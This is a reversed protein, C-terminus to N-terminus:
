NMFLATKLSTYGVSVPLPPAEYRIRSTTLFPTAPWRVLLLSPGVVLRASVTVCYSCSSGDLLVTYQQLRCAYWLRVTWCNLRYELTASVNDTVYHRVYARSWWWRWKNAWLLIDTPRCKRIHASMRRIKNAQRWTCGRDPVVMGRPARDHSTQSDQGNEGEIRRGTDSTHEASLSLYHVDYNRRWHNLQTSCDALQSAHM